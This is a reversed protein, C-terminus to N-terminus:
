RTRGLRAEEDLPPLPWDQEAQRIVLVNEGRRRLLATLTRHTRGTDTWGMSEVLFSSSRTTIHDIMQEFVSEGDNLDVLLQVIEGVSGFPQEERRAMIAHAIEYSGGPLGAIVAAPATNFNVKGRTESGPEVSVYDVLQAITGWDLGAVTRLQALSTYGSEGIESLTSLGDFIAQPGYMLFLSGLRGNVFEQFAPENWNRFENLGVRVQGNPDTNPAESDVTVVDALGVREESGFYMEPTVARVLLLEGPSQFPANRPLYPQHLAAYDPSEAGGPTVDEGRDRWDNISAAAAPDGTIRLLMEYDAENVNIRGCADHVRVRYFGDGLKHPLDLPRKARPGWDDLLTDATRDDYLLIARALNMGAEALFLAQTRDLSTRSALLEVRVAATIGVALVALLVVAFIALILVVGRRGRGARAPRYRCYPGTYM